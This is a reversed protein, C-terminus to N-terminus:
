LINPDLSNSSPWKLSNDLPHKSWKKNCLHILKPAKLYAMLSLPKFTELLCGLLFKPSINNSPKSRMPSDSFFLHSGISYQDWTDWLDFLYWTFYCPGSWTWVPFLHLRPQSAWPFFTRAILVSPCLRLCTVLGWYEAMPFQRFHKNTFPALWVRSSPSQTYGWKWSKWSCWFLVLYEVTVGVPKHFCKYQSSSSFEGVSATLTTYLSGASQWISYPSSYIFVTWHGPGCPPLIRDLRPVLLIATHFHVVLYISFGVKLTINIFLLCHSLLPHVPRDAFMTLSPTDVKWLIACTCTTYLAMDCMAHGYQVYIVYPM